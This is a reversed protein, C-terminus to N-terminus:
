PIYALVLVIAFSARPENKEESYDINQGNALKRCAKGELHCKLYHM